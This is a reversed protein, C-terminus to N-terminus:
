LFSLLFGITDYSNKFYLNPIDRFINQGLVRANHRNMNIKLHELIKSM